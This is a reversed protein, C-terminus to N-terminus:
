EDICGIMRPSGRGNGLLFDGSRQEGIEQKNEISDKM